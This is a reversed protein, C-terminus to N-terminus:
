CKWWEPLEDKNWIRNIVKHIESVTTRGGAKAFESPIQDVGSSKHRKLKGIAMEVEFASPEPV